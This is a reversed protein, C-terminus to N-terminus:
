ETPSATAHSSASGGDHHSGSWNQFWIKEGCFGPLAADFYACLEDITMSSTIVAKYKYRWGGEQYPRLQYFETDKSMFAVKNAARYDAHSRIYVNYSVRAPKEMEIILWLTSRKFM